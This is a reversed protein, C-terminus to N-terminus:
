ANSSVIAIGSSCGVRDAGAEVIKRINETTHVAVSAKIKVKESLHRRLFQIMELSEEGDLIGTSLRVFDVGKEGGIECLQKIEEQTLLSTEFILKIIKGKSHAALTTSDIDNKVHAWDGKKVANINIMVEVEDVEDNVARKIEEVKAPTASYGMPFGIVTAVKVSSDKLLRAADRVYYPPICVAKFEHVIAEECVKKIDDLTCDPKLITHDIYSAVNM